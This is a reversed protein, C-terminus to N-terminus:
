SKYNRLQPLENVVSELDAGRYVYQHHVAVPWPDHIPLGIYGDIRDRSISSINELDTWITQSWTIKKKLYIKQYAEAMLHLAINYYGKELHGKILHPVSIIMTGDEEEVEAIHVDDPHAPSLFPHHYFAIRDLGDYLFSEQHLTLLVAYFALIYKVDEPANQENKNIFDKKMVWRKIRDEMLRQQDERLQAFWPSTQIFMDRMAQDLKQPVGRQMLQDIQYQFTYGIVGIFLCIALLYVLDDRDKFFIFYSCVVIGLAALVMIRRSM